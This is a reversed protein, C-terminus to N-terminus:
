AAGQWRVLEYNGGTDLAALGCALDAAALKRQPYPDFKKYDFLPINRIDANSEGLISRIESAIPLVCRRDEVEVGIEYNWEGLCEVLYYVNPHAEAFSYLKKQVSDDTSKSNIALKFKSLGTVGSIIPTYYGDIVGSNELSRKRRKFTTLPIDGVEALQRCSNGNSSALLSLVLNDTEDLRCARSDRALKLPRITNFKKSLHKRGFYTIRSRVCVSRSAIIPGFVSSIRSLESMVDDISRALISFMYPHDAGLESVWPVVPSAVLYELLADISSQKSPQFSVYIAYETYGLLYTNVFPRAPEIINHRRLNDLRYRITHERFGTERMLSTVSSNGKLEIVRLLDRDKATLKRM